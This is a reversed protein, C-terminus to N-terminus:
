KIIYIEDSLMHDLKIIMRHSTLFNNESTVQAYYKLFTM